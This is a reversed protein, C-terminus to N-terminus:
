EINQIQERIKEIECKIDVVLKAISANQCKSGITNTERNIEQVLFDLRRGVPEDSRLIDEFGDFHSRLRVLEEDIAIKDAFLACETLIRNEDFVIRNDSLMERLRNELKERYSQTDNESLKEISQVRERIADVKAVLDAKINEGERIRGSIFKETAEDLVASVDAWDKEIDEEPKKIVFLDRNQAVTMVSIDDSLSCLDRLERLAAVYAGALGEDVAISVDPTDVVDIGIFVDVKGRTIGAAQLHPKIREELFSFARPLKVSCDFFRNNVSRIEVTIDKGGLTRRARGFATMSKIM